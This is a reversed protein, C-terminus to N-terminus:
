LLRDVPCVVDVPLLFNCDDVERSFHVLKDPRDLDLENFRSRSVISLFRHGVLEDLQVKTPVRNGRQINSQSRIDLPVPAYSLLSSFQKNDRITSKAKPRVSGVLPACELVGSPLM